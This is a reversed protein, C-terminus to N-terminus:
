VIRRRRLWGIGMMGVGALLAAGPAPIITTTDPVAIHNTPGDSDPDMFGKNWATVDTKKGKDNVVGDKAYFDGWVPARTSTFEVVLTTSDTSTDWKIGRMLGPMDPNSNGHSTASYDDLLGEGGQDWSTVDKESFTPSVEIILHSIDKEPVTLKYWYSWLGGNNTVEWEMSSAGPWPNEPYGVQAVTGEIQNGTLTGTLNPLAYLSGSAFVACLAWCTMVRLTIKM